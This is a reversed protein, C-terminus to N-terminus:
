VHEGECGHVEEETKRRKGAIEFRLMRYGVDDNNWGEFQGLMEM